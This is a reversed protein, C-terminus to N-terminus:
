QDVERHHSIKPTFAVGATTSLLAHLLYAWVNYKYSSGRVIVGDSSIM